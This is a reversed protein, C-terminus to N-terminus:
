HQTRRHEELWAVSDTIGQQEWWGSTDDLAAIIESASQAPHFILAEQIDRETWLRQEWPIESDMATGAPVEIIM